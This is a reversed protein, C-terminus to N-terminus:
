NIVKKCIFFKEGRILGWKVVDDGYATVEQIHHFGAEKLRDRFDRGYYRVHDRQDFHLEREPESTISKNEYTTEWGEIIPVSCILCGNDSLVRFMERMAKFDDVHELVHNCIITNYSGSQLSLNELDLKLDANAYLDATKYEPYIKKFQESLSKEPAFHLIPEQLKIKDGQFWLWFLRQRPHSDCSPCTNDRVLTMGFWVEFIGKYGCIPCIRSTSHYSLDRGVRKLKKNKRFSAPLMKKLVQKIHM